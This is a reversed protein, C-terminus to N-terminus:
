GEEEPLALQGAEGGGYESVWRSIERDDVVEEGLIVLVPDWDIGDEGLEGFVALDSLVRIKRFELDVLLPRPILLLANRLPLLGTRSTPKKRRQGTRTRKLWSQCLCTKSRLDVRLTQRKAQSPDFEGAEGRM